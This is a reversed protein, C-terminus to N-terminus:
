NQLHQEYREKNLKRVKYFHMMALTSSTIVGGSIIAIPIINHANVSMFDIANDILTLADALMISLATYKM